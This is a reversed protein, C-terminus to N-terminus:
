IINNKQVKYICGIAGHIYGSANILTYHLKLAAYFSDIDKYHKCYRYYIGMITDDDIHNGVYDDLIKSINDEM